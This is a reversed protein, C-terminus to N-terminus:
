TVHAKILAMAFTAANAAAIPQWDRSTANKTGDAKDSVGRVVVVDISSLHAAHAVGADEMSVAAADNYNHSLFTALAARRSDLVVDGAAIAEFHVKPVAPNGDVEAPWSTRSIHQALQILRHAADWARPRVSFDDHEQLGGHYAYVRTAVVLDGLELTDWLAGAIGVFVVAAPVFEASHTTIVSAQVNGKGTMAMAVRRDTGAITGIEFVTGSPHQWADIDRLNARVARYEVDLATLVVVLQNDHQRM